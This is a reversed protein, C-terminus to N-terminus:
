IYIKKSNRSMLYYFINKNIIDLNKKFFGSAGFHCQKEYKWTIPLLYYLIKDKNM